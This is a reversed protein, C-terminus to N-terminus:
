DKERYVLVPSLLGGTGLENLFERTCLLSIQNETEPKAEVSIDFSVPQCFGTFSDANEGKPGIYPIHKGNVFVKVRGDTAGLWLYGKNGAPFAPLKVKTRYWLSGMYNHLGLTSWTDVACDTSKWANDDFDPKFWGGAEGKKPEDQQYCWQRLPPSTLIQFGGAVRAADEYTAKYFADFIAAHDRRMKMFLDFQELSESAM